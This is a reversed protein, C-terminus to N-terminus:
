AYLPIYKTAGNVTVELWSDVTGTDGPTNGVEGTFALNVITGNNDVVMTSNDSALSGVFSSTVSNATLNGDHTFVFDTATGAPNAVRIKASGPAVNNSVAEVAEFVLSAAFRNTTGDFAEGVLELVRDGAQYSAPSDFTGRHKVAKIDSINDSDHYTNVSLAVGSTGSRKIVLQGNKFTGAEDDAGLNMPGNPAVNISEGQIQLNTGPTLISRTTIKQNIADVIVSSNDSFVSGTLDGDVAGTLNGVFDGNFTGTFTNTENNYAVTSDNAILDAQISDATIQGAANISSFWANRWRLSESGIDHVLDQDPILASSLRGGVSIIDGGAGDGLNISGTATITGTININGTGTIDNGNLDLDAGLQPTTDDVIDNIGTVVNGGATSGDGVFLRKTDTTYILEGQEPTVTLREANTGRRLKLAM